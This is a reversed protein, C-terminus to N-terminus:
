RKSGTGAPVSPNGGALLDPRRQATRELSKERRWRAIAEHDGSLLVEPVRWGRFEAPRTYHPYDLLGESFSDQVACEARGIAGPLLRTVAEVVILAPLEGGSLVYDGISIELDVLHQRVREDIGEYRGCLLILREYEASLRRIEKQDLRRGQPCMLVVAAPTAGSAAKIQEVAAFLPEPRFVMGGGGGFPLDDVKRHRDVSWDRLDHVKVSIIGKEIARLLLGETLAAKVMLPFITVIEFKM